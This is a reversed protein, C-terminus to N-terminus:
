QAAGGHESASPSSDKQTWRRVCANLVKEELESPVRVKPQIDVMRRGFCQLIRGGPWRCTTVEETESKAVKPKDARAAVM